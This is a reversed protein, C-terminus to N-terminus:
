TDKKVKIHRLIDNKKLFPVLKLGNVIPLPTLAWRFGSLELIAGVNALYVLMVFRLGFSM